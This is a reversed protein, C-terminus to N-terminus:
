DMNQLGKIRKVMRHYHSGEWYVKRCNTCQFFEDFYRITKPKLQDAIKQKEVIVISGNCNICRNLPRINSSLDFRKIVEELQEKPKQSRLWYGHTVSGNKLIGLDRTLIIRKEKLSIDIIEPDSYNNQYLTDFGLMRLYRALKGLHVDLVFKTIRLPEPRLKTVNSIDLSEFVPYVAVLDNNKTKFNFNVSEGNVLILDVETHPVGLSEIVDKITMMGNYTHQFIVKRKKKPLFDNLEEYFRIQITTPM